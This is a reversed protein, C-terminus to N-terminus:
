QREICCTSRLFITIYPPTRANQVRASVVHTTLDFDADVTYKGSTETVGVTGMKGVRSENALGMIHTPLVHTGPLVESLHKV